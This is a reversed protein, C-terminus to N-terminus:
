RPVGCLLNDSGKMHWAIAVLVVFLVCLRQMLTFSMMMDDVRSASIYRWTKNPDGDCARERERERLTYRANIVLGSFTYFMCKRRMINSANNLSSGKSDGALPHEPDFNKQAGPGATEM